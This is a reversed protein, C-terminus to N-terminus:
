FHDSATKYRLLFAFFYKQWIGWSGYHLHTPSGLYSISASGSRRHPRDLFYMFNQKQIQRWDNFYMFNTLVEHIFLSYTRNLFLLESYKVYIDCLGCYKTPSSFVGLSRQLLGLYGSQFCDRQFVCTDSQSRNTPIIFISTLTKKRWNPAETNCAVTIKPKNSKDIRLSVAFPFSLCDKWKSALTQFIFWILRWHVWDTLTFAQSQVKILLPVPKLHFYCKAKTSIILQDSSCKM